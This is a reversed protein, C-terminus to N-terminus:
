YNFLMNFRGQKKEILVNLLIKPYDLNLNIPSPLQILCTITNISCHSPVIAKWNVQDEGQEKTQLAFNVAVVQYQRWELKYFGMCIFELIVSLFILFTM